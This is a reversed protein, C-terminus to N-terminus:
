ASDRLAVAPPRLTLADTHGTTTSVRLTTTTPPRQYRGSRTRKSRRTMEGKTPMVYGSRRGSSSRRVAERAPKRRKTVSSTRATTKRERGHPRDFYGSPRSRRDDGAAGEHEWRAPGARKVCARRARARVVSSRGGRNDNWQADRQGCSRPRTRRRQPHGADLGERRGPAAQPHGTVRDERRGDSDGGSTFPPTGIPV